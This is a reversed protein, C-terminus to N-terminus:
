LTDLFLRSCLSGRQAAPGLLQPAGWMWDVYRTGQNEVLDLRPNGEVLASEYLRMHLLYSPRTSTGENLIAGPRVTLGLKDRAARAVADAWSEDARLSAAPLGWALPLDEDDPPRQVLLIRTPDQPDRIVLAVSRKTPLASSVSM